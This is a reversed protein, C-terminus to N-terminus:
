TRELNTRLEMENRQSQLTKCGKKSEVSRCLWYFTLNPITQIFKLRSRCSEERQWQLYQLESGWGHACAAQSAMGFYMVLSRPALANAWRKPSLSLFCPFCSEGGIWRGAPNVPVKSFHLLSYSQLFVKVRNPSYDFCLVMPSGWKVLFLPWLKVFFVLHKNRLSFFALLKSSFWAICKASNSSSQLTLVIILQPQWSLVDQRQGKVSVVDSKGEMGFFEKNM